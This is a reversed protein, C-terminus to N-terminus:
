GVRAKNSKQYTKKRHKSTCGACFRKRTPLPGGCEPCRRSLGSIHHQFRYNAVADLYSKSKAPDSVMAAMPLVCEEFYACRKNDALLCKPQPRSPLSQLTDSFRTGLCSGDPNFNACEAHAFQLPTM